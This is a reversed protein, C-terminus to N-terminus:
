PCPARGGSTLCLVFPDIDFANVSGDCNIDASLIDCSPYALAYAAPNTPALVFPDIDFTNLAGDCNVDGPPSNARTWLRAEDSRTLTGFGYVAV